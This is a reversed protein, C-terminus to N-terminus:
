LKEVLFISPHICHLVSDNHMLIHETSEIHKKKRQAYTIQTHTNYKYAPIKPASLRFSIFIYVHIFNLIFHASRHKPHTLINKLSSDIDINLINFNRQSCLRLDAM